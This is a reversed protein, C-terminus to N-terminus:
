EQIRLFLPTSAEFLPWRKSLSANHMCLTSVFDDHSGGGMVMRAEAKERFVDFEMSYADATQDTRKSISVKTVEQYIADIAGPVLRERVIRLLNRVGDGNAIHDNGITM